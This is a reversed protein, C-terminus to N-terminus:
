QKTLGLAAIFANIVLVVFYVYNVGHQWFMIKKLVTNMEICDAHKTLAECQGKLIKAESAEKEYKQKLKQAEALDESIKMLRANIDEQNAKPDDSMLRLREKEAKANAVVQELHEADGRTKIYGLQIDVLKKQSKVNNRLIEYEYDEYIKKTCKWPCIAACCKCFVEDDKQRGDGDEDSENGRWICKCYCFNVCCDQAPDDSFKGFYSQINSVMLTLLGAIIQLGLSVSLLVLLVLYYRCLSPINFTKGYRSAPLM